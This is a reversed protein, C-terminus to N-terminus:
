HKCLQLFLETKVTWDSNRARALAERQVARYFEPDERLSLMAQAIAPVSRGDVVLGNVGDQIAETSGGDNGAIAPGLWGGSRRFGPPNRRVASM